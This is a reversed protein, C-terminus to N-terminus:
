RGGGGVGGFFAALFFTGDLPSATGVSATNQYRRTWQLALGTELTRIPHAFVQSVCRNENRRLIDRDSRRLSLSVSALQLVRKQCSGWAHRERQPVCENPVLVSLCNLPDDPQCLFPVTFM